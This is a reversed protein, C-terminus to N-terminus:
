VYDTHKTHYSHCGAEEFLFSFVSKSYRLNMEAIKKTFKEFSFKLIYAGLPTLREVSETHSAENKLKM